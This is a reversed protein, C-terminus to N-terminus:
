RLGRRNCNRSPSRNEPQELCVVHHAIGGAGAILSSLAKGIGGGVHATLHVINLQREQGQPM